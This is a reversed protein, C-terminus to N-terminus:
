SKRSPKRPKASKRRMKKATPDEDDEFSDDVAFRDGGMMDERDRKSPVQVRDRFTNSSADNRVEDGNQDLQMRALLSGGRRIMEPRQQSYPSEREQSHPHPIDRLGPDDDLNMGMPEDKDPYNSLYKRPRPPRPMRGDPPLQDEYMRQGAFNSRDGSTIDRASNGWGPNAYDSRMTNRDSLRRSLDPSRLKHHDRHLAPNPPLAHPQRTPAPSQLVAPIFSEDYRDSLRGELSRSKRPEADDTHRDRGRPLQEDPGPRTPRTSPPVPAGKSSGPRDHTRTDPYRTPQRGSDSQWSPSVNSPERSIPPPSPPRGDSSGTGVSARFADHPPNAGRPTWTRASMAPDQAPGLDFRSQQPSGSFSGPERAVATKVSLPQHKEFPPPTLDRRHPHTGNGESRGSRYMDRGDNDYPREYPDRHAHLPAGGRGRMSGGRTVRSSMGGLGQLPPGTNLMRMPPPGPPGGNGMGKRQTGIPVHNAGSGVASTPPLRHFDSPRGRTERRGGRESPYGSREEMWEPADRRPPLDFGRERGGDHMRAMIHPPPSRDRDANRSGAGQAHSFPIVPSTSAHQKTVTSTTASGAMARPGRPPADERDLYPGASEIEPIRLHMPTPLSRRRASRPPLDDAEVEMPMDNQPPATPYVASSRRDSGYRTDRDRDRERDAYRRSGTPYGRQSDGDGRGQSHPLSRPGSPPQSSNPNLRQQDRPGSPLPGEPDGLTGRLPLRDQPPPPAREWGQERFEAAQPPLPIRKHGLYSSPSLARFTVSVRISPCLFFSLTDALPLAQAAVPSLRGQEYSSQVQVRDLEFDRDHVPKAYNSPYHLSSAGSDGHAIQLSATSVTLEDRVGTADRRSQSEHPPSRIDDPVFPDDEEVPRPPYTQQIVGPPRPALLASPILTPSTSASPQGFRTPRERKRQPPPLVSAPPSIPRTPTERPQEPERSLLHRTEDDDRTRHDRKHPPTSRTRPSPINQIRNQERLEVARPQDRDPNRGRGSGNRPTTSPRGEFAPGEYAAADQPRPRRRSEQYISSNLEAPPNSPDQRWHGRPPAFAPPLVDRDRQISTDADTNANRGGRGSHLARSSRPERGRSGTSSVMAFPSPSRARERIRPPSSPPTFALEPHPNFRPDMPEDRSREGRRSDAPPVPAEAGGPRYHRDKYSLGNTDSAAATEQLDIIDPDPQPQARRSHRSPEQSQPHPYDSRSPSLSKYGAPLNSGRHRRTNDSRSHSRSRSSNSSSVPRSWTSQQTRVNYYYTGGLGSRAERAEWHRPLPDPEIVASSKGTGTTSVTTGSFGNIKSKNSESFAARTTVSMATAEVISPHSPHLFPVNTVIPKPPLAHTIRTTQPRQPSRTSTSSSNRRPSGATSSQVQSVSSDERKLDRTSSPLQVDGNNSSRAAPQSSEDGFAIGTSAEQQQTYYEEEDEEEGLSVADEADDIDGTGHRHAYDATKNPDQNKSDDEENGWDLVEHEDDM